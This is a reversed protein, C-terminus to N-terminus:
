FCIIGNLRAKNISLKNVIIGNANIPKPLSKFKLIRSKYVAGEHITLDLKKFTTSNRKWKENALKFEKYINSSPDDRIEHKWQDLKKHIQQMTPRENPNVDWCKFLLKKLHQPIEQPLQPRRGMFIDFVLGQDHAKNYFPPNGSVVESAIIGFSYVDSALSYSADSFVEPAVYPIVGYIDKSNEDDLPKCLGLDSITISSLRYYLINGSHLNKHIMNVNHLQSLCSSIESLIDLRENWNKEHFTENLIHRLSGLDAYQMVIGYNKSKPEQSIGYIRTTVPKNGGVRLYGQIEELFQFSSDKSNYFEKFIVRSVGARSWQQKSLDFRQMPGNVLVASYVTSFGGQAIRTIDKLSSYPIWELLEFVKKSKIHSKQILRDLKNNGTSWKDFELRFRKTNCPQCYFSPNHQNYQYEYCEDCAPYSTESTSYVVNESKPSSKLPTMLMRQFSKICKMVCDFSLDSKSSTSM